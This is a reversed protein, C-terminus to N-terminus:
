TVCVVFIRVRVEQRGIVTTTWDEHVVVVEGRWNPVELGNSLTMFLGWLGSVCAGQLRNDIYTNLSLM